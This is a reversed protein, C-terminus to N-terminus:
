SCSPSLLEATSDESAAVVSGVAKAAVVVLVPEGAKVSDESDPSDVVSHHVGSDSVHASVAVAVSAPARDCPEWDVVSHHVGSDFVHAAALAALVGAAREPNAWPSVGSDVVSHHVGSDFVQAAVAAAVATPLPCATGDPTWVVGDNALVAADIVAAAEAADPLQWVSHPCHPPSSKM